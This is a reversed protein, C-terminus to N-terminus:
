FRYGVSAQIVQNNIGLNQTDIQSLGLYFRASFFFNETLYSGVGLSLGFDIDELQDRVNLDSVVQVQQTTTTTEGDEGIITVPQNQSVIEEARAGMLFGIQPGAEAFFFESIHYRAMLPFNLYSLRLEQETTVALEPPLEPLGPISIDATSQSSKYGQVSFIMEPVFRLKDNLEIDAFGGLHHAFLFEADLDDGSASSLNIGGKLGLRVDVRRQAHFQTVTFIFLALFFIQKM